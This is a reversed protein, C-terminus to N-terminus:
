PHGDPGEQASESGARPRRLRWGPRRPAPPAPPPEPWPDLGATKRYFYTLWVRLMATVPQALLVGVVGALTAGAMAALLITLPRTKLSYGLIGPVLVTNEIQQIILFAALVIVAFALPHLGWWNAGQFFAVVVAILGAIFPGFFPVVDLIGAILGLVLAFRVGLAALAAAVVLGLVLALLLQGRVFARWVLTTEELLRLADGQFEPPAWAALRAEAGDIDVLMYFALVVILAIVGVASATASALTALITGTQSLFPQLISALGSVLPESNMNSLDFVWPGLVVQAVAIQQLQDPVQNSLLILDDILGGLQQSAALGLGTAAGGILIGLVVFVLLAGGLRPVKSRRQLWHVLPALMYALLLALLVPLLLRRVAYLLGALLILLVVAGALRSSPRWPPSEPPPLLGKM